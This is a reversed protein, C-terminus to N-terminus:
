LSVASAPAQRQVAAAGVRRGVVEAEEGEGALDLAVRRAELDLIEPVDRGSSRATALSPLFYARVGIAVSTPVSRSAM